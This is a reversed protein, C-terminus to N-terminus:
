KALVLRSSDMVHGDVILRCFYVGSAARTGRETEGRWVVDHAGATANAFEFHRVREGKVSVIDLRANAAHELVFRITTSPNFPNPFNGALHSRARTAGVDTVIRALRYINGDVGGFLLDNNVGIGITNLAPANTALSFRQPEGVGDYHLGWVVGSTYDAFVFTGALEPLRTGWYRCGGVIATGEDHTYTYLPLQLFKGATDCSAPQFCDPGEMLPWGYNRGARVLDIEEYTNEGVDCVFLENTYPDISFRWPNRFGYAYIEPLYGNTNNAFPNDPPIQYLPTGHVDIRLLSGQFDTLNQASASSKNDGLAIYLYGDNGFAIQGGNHYANGPDFQPVDLLIQESNPDAVDPDSSVKMRSVISHSPYKTVYFIYFTGNTRYNPDFAAGILGAEGATRVKFSIDLFTKSQTTQVDAAFVRIYGSKELVFMRYTGDNSLKIDTPSSFTLGPYARQLMYQAAAPRGALVVTVLTLLFARRGPALIAAM